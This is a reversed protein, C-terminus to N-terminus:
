SALGRQADIQIVFISSPKPVHTLLLTNYRYYATANVTRM